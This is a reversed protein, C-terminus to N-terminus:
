SISILAARHATLSPFSKVNKKTLPLGSPKSNSIKKHLYGRCLFYRVFITFSIESKLNEFLLCYTTTSNIFLDSM